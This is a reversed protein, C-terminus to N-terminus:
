SRPQAPNREFLGRTVVVNLPPPPDLAVGTTEVYEICVSYNGCPQYTGNTDSVLFASGNGVLKLGLAHAVELIKALSATNYDTSEYRQIQQEKLGLRDALDAQTMRAAIRAEILSRPLDDISAIKSTCAKGSQLAEYRKLDERLEELLSALGDREIKQLPTIGSDLGTLQSHAAELKVIQSKTVRHQRENKIM